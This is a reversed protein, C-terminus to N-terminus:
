VRGLHAQTESFPSIRSCPRGSAQFQWTRWATTISVLRRDRDGSFPFIRANPRLSDAIESGFPGFGSGPSRGGIRLLGGNAPMELTARPSIEIRRVAQSPRSSEFRRM